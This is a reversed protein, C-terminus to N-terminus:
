LPHGQILSLMLEVHDIPTDKHIGHGLNFIFPKNQMVQLIHEVSQTLNEGSLLTAPSLNGQLVHSPVQQHVHQLDSMEDVGFAIDLDQLKAYDQTVGRGYYIIPIHPYISRVHGVCTRLPTYLLEDRMDQPVVSAWSEFIQVVNVGAEIHMCLLKSVHLILQNMMDKVLAPNAKCYAIVNSFDTTKGQSIMYTLLTWPAGAFGILAKDDELVSRTQRIAKPIPALADELSVNKNKELIEELSLNLLRPGHNEEFWVTQGMAHPIVLIDSFIIAADLAFRRVPQLTVETVAHPTMCFEIFDKFNKRIKKYEPLYRGAQRMMWVPPIELSKKHVLVEILRM